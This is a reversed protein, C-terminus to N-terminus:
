KSLTFSSPILKYLWYRVELREVECICCSSLHGLLCKVWKCESMGHVYVYWTVGNVHEQVLTEWSMCQWIHLCGAPTSKVVTLPHTPCHITDRKWWVRELYSLFKSVKEALWQGIKTVIRCIFIHEACKMYVNCLWIIILLLSWKRWWKLNCLLYEHLQTLQHILVHRVKFNHM